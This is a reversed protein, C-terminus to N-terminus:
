RSTLTVSEHADRTGDVTTPAGIQTAFNTATLGGNPLGFTALGGSSVALWHVLKGGLRTLGTGVIKRKPRETEREGSMCCTSPVNLRRACVSSVMVMTPSVPVPLSTIACPM